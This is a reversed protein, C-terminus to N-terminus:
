VAAIIWFHCCDQLLNAFCLTLCFFEGDPSFMCWLTMGTELSNARSWEQEQQESISTPKMLATTTVLYHGKMLQLGWKGAQPTRSAEWARRGASCLQLKSTRHYLGQAAPEADKTALLESGDWNHSQIISKLHDGLALCLTELLYSNNTGLIVDLLVMLSDKTYRTM